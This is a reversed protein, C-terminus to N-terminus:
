LRPGMLTSLSFSGNSFSGTWRATATVRYLTASGTTKDVVVSFEGVLGDTDGAIPTLGGPQGDPGPVDFGVGDMTALTAFDVSRLEELNDRCARSALDVERDAIRLRSQHVTMSLAAGIVLVCVLLGIMLETLSAGSERDDFTRVQRSKATM